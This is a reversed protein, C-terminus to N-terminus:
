IKLSDQFNEQCINLEAIAKKLLKWVFLAFVAFSEVLNPYFGIFDYFKETM